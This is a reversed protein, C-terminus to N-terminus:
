SLIGKGENKLELATTTLDHLDQTLARFHLLLPIFKQPLELLKEELNSINTIFGDTTASVVKGGL